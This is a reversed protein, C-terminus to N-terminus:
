SGMNAHHLQGHQSSSLDELQSSGTAANAPILPQHMQGHESYAHMGSLWSAFEQKAQQLADQANVTPDVASGLRLGIDQPKVATNAASGLESSMGQSKVVPDVASDLRFTPEEAAAKRQGMYRPLKSLASQYQRPAQNSYGDRIDQQQRAALQLPNQENGWQEKWANHRSGTSAAGLKQALGDGPGATVSM